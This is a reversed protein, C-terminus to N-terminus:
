CIPPGGTVTQRSSLLSLSDMSDDSTNSRARRAASVPSQAAYTSACPPMSTQLPGKHKSLRLPEILESWPQTSLSLRGTAVPTIERYVEDPTQDDLRQHPREDNYWDFYQKLGQRLARGDAFAHIYLREYKVSRWLREVVINDRYCGKGDMSIQIGHQKLAGIFAESTFQVGQDTNFIDPVGYRDIAEALAEVCFYSDLSNSVRWALM